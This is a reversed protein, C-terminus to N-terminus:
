IKPKEQEFYVNAIRGEQDLLFTVRGPEYEETVADGFKVVRCKRGILDKITFPADTLSLPWPIPDSWPWPHSGGGNDGGSM